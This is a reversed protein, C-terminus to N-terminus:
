AGPAPVAGGPSAPLYPTSLRDSLAGLVDAVSIRALDEAALGTMASRPGVHGPASVKTCLLMVGPAGAYTAMHVPGTDNGVCFLAERGLGAMDLQNVRMGTLDVADPAAELIRSALAEQGPGGLVGVSLGYDALRAALAAYHEVPWLKEPRSASAGPVLLAFPTRLGFRAAVTDFGARKAAALAADAAFTLDSAPAAGEPYAPGVGAVHLQDAMRDFNHVHNRDPRTQPHSGFRAIGSWEPPRPLLAWWLRTSGKSTQLDYVRQYRARRLRRVLALWSRFRRPRGDTEVRDVLGSATALDAYPATTLLTIDAQPHAERIVKMPAFVQAFDGLAAFKIVLIRTL